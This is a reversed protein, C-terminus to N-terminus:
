RKKTFKQSRRKSKKSRKQKKSRGKTGRHSDLRPQYRAYTRELRPLYLPMPLGMGQEGFAINIIGNIDFSVLPNNMGDYIYNGNVIPTFYLSEIGYRRLIPEKQTLMQALTWSLNEKYHTFDFSYAIKNNGDIFNIRTTKVKKDM